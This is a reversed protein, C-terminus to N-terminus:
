EQNRWAPQDENYVAADEVGEEIRLEELQALIRDFDQDPQYKVGTYGGNTKVHRLLACWDADKGLTHPNGVVINLAKARTIAVNFRKSNKLFGLQFQHDLIVYDSKSRVCSIIIVRREQGQFEETSGVTINSADKCSPETKALHKLAIRLKDVQRRYPSIIGIEKVDIKPKTNLLQKVYDRVISVEQPNFFSPSQAERQDEGVVGHFIYPFKGKANNPLGSFNIMSNILIHDGAVELENNYFLRSPLSLIAPHSRYNKVLKTIYKSNYVGKKPQYIDRNMLRELLSLGLGNDKSQPSTLVPGLQKPDGALVIQGKSHLTAKNIMGALAICTEPETAQGAEDIFVHSFHDPPFQASVIRGATCLTVVLVDFKAYDAMKSSYIAGNRINSIGKISERITIIHRSPAHIRIIKSKGFHAMLREAVLDAAANSPTAALIKSGPKIKAVQKIAEVLTVTKGTGPPGFIIYPIGDAKRSVINEVATMQCRNKELLSNYPKIEVPHLHEVSGGNNAEPFLTPLLGEEKVLKVARYMNRLPYRCQTFRVDFTAGKIYSKILSSNVGLDVESEHVAHVFGEYEKKEGCMKLFIRDGKLVSPRNEALGPVALRLLGASNRGQGSVLKVKVREMDYKRIDHDRQLEEFQLLLEMKQEYSNSLLDKKLLRRIATVDADGGEDMMKGISIKRDAPIKYLGLVRGKELLWEGASDLPQGAITESVEWTTYRKRPQYPTSAKLEKIISNTVSFKIELAMLELLQRGNQLQSLEEHYFSIIFTDRYEGVQLSQCNVDVKYSRQPLLRIRKDSGSTINNEDRLTICESPRIRLMKEMVIGKKEDKCTDNGINKINLKFSKASREQATVEVLSEGKQLTVSTDADKLSIELGFRHPNILYTTKKSQYLQVIHNVRHRSTELHPRMEIPLNLGAKCVSCFTCGQKVLMPKHQTTADSLEVDKLLQVQCNLAPTTLAHDVCDGYFSEETQRAVLRLNDVMQKLRLGQATTPTTGNLWDRNYMEFTGLILVPANPNTALGGRVASEIAPLITEIRNDGGGSAPLNEALVLVCLTVKDLFSDDNSQIYSKEILKLMMMCCGERQKPEFCEMREIVLGRKVYVLLGDVDSDTKDLSFENYYKDLEYFEANIQVNKRPNALVILSPSHKKVLDTLASINSHLGTQLNWYLYSLPESRKHEYKRNPYFYQDRTFNSRKVFAM